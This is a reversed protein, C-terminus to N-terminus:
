PLKYEMAQIIHPSIIEIFKQTADRGFYVRGRNVISVEIQYRNLLAQSIKELDEGSFRDTAIAVSNKKRLFGDDMFWVALSLPSFLEEIEDPIIKEGSPYFYNRWSHFYQKTWFRYSTTNRGSLGKRKAITIRTSVINKLMEYKWELYGKQKKGQEIQIRGLKTIYGDGLISGLLIDFESQTLKLLQNKKSQLVVPLIERSGVTNSM